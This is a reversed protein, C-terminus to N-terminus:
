IMQQLAESMAKVYDHGVEPLTIFEGRLGRRVSEEYNTKSLAYEVQADKEGHISDIRFSVPRKFLDEPRLRGALLIVKEVSPIQQAVFPALIGGQSYGIIRHIRTLLNESKLVQLLYRISIDMPVLFNKTHADYFYWSYGLLVRSKTQVPVPLPAQPCVWDLSDLDDGFMHSFSRASQSYGHLLLTLKPAALNGHSFIKTEIGLQTQLNKEAFQEM